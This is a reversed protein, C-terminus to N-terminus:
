KAILAKTILLVPILLCLVMVFDSSDYLHPDFDNAATAM